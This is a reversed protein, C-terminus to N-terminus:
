GRDRLALNEECSWPLFVPFVQYANLAWFWCNRSFVIVWGERGRGRGRRLPLLTPVSFAISYSSQQSIFIYLLSIGRHRLPYTCWFLEQLWGYAGIAHSRHSDQKPGALVLAFDIKEERKQGQYHEHNQVDLTLVFQLCMSMLKTKGMWKSCSM